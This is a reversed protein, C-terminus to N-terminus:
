VKSDKSALERSDEEQPNKALYKTNKRQMSKSKRLIAFCCVIGLALVVNVPVLASAVIVSHLNESRYIFCIM